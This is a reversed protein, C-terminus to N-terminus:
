DTKPWKPCQIKYVDYGSKTIHYWFKQFCSKCEMIVIGIRDNSFGKTQAPQETTFGIISDLNRNLIELSRQDHDNPLSMIYWGCEPCTAADGRKIGSHYSEGWAKLPEESM